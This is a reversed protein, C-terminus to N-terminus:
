RRVSAPPPELPLDPRLALRNSAAEFSRGLQAASQRGVLRDLITGQPSLFLVTPLSVIGLRRCAEPECDADVEICIYASASQAVRADSWANHLMAQGHDCWPASIFM